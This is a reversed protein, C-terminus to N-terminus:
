GGCIWTVLLWDMNTWTHTHSYFPLFFSIDISPHISPNCIPTFYCYIFTESSSHSKHITRINNNNRLPLSSSYFTASLIPLCHLIVTTDVRLVSECGRSHTPSSSTPLWLVAWLVHGPIFHCHKYVRWRIERSNSMCLNQNNYHYWPSSWNRSIRIAQWNLKLGKYPPSGLLTSFYLNRNVQENFNAYLIQPRILPHNIGVVVAVRFYDLALFERSLTNVTSDTPNVTHRTPQSAPYSWAGVIGLVLM